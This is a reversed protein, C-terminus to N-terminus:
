AAAEKVRIPMARNQSHWSADAIAATYSGHSWGHDGALVLWGDCDLLVWICAARRMPFREITM